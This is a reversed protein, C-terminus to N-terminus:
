KRKTHKMKEIERKSVSINTDKQKVFLNSKDVWRGLNLKQSVNVTEEKKKKKFIGMAKEKELEKVDKEKKKKIREMLMPYPVNQNKQKHAGLHEAYKQKDKKQLRKSFGQVGYEKVQRAIDVFNLGEDEVPLTQIKRKRNLKENKSPKNARGPEEFVVVKPERKSKMPFNLEVASM